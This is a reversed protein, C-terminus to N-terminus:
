HNILFRDLTLLLNLLVAHNSEGSDHSNFIMAIKDMDFIGIEALRESNPLDRILGYIRRNQGLSEKAAPWSRDQWSPSPYFPLGFVRNGLFRVIKVVTQLPLPYSARINTNANRVAMMKPNLLNIASQYISGNVKDEPSMQIALDFLDNELAPSRCDMFTRVSSMMPFSYHRSLNHLHMYEWLDYEKAGLGRGRSIIENISHRLYDKLDNQKDAYVISFPDSTHLRYKVGHIFSDVLNNGM